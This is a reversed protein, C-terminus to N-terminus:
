LVAARDVNAPGTGGGCAGSGGSGAGGASAGGSGAWSHRVADGDAGVGDGCDGAGADCTSACIEYKELGDPPGNLLIVARAKKRPARHSGRQLATDTCTLGGPM